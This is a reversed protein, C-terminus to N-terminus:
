EERFEPNSISELFLRRIQPDSLNMHSLNHGYQQVWAARRQAALRAGAMFALKCLYAISAPKFTKTYERAEIEFPRLEAEEM